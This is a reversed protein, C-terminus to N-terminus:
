FEFIKQEKIKLIVKDCGLTKKILTRTKKKMKSLDVYIDVASALSDFFDCQCGSISINMHDMFLKLESSKDVLEKHYNLIEYLKQPSEILLTKTITAKTSM